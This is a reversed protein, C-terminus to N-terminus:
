SPDSREMLAIMRVAQTMSRVGLKALVQQRHLEVTRVSIGMAESCAVSTEGLIALRLVEMERPTLRDLGDRVPELQQPPVNELWGV